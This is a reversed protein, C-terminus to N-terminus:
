RKPKNTLLAMVAQDNASVSHYLSPQAPQLNQNRPQAAHAEQLGICCDANPSDVLSFCTPSFTLLICDVQVSLQTSGGCLM